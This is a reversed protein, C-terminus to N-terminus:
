LLIELKIKFYLTHRQFHLFLFVLTYNFLSVVSKVMFVFHFPYNAIIQLKNAGLRDVNVVIKGGKNALLCCLPIRVLKCSHAEKFIFVNVSFTVDFLM